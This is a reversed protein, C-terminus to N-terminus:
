LKKYLTGTFMLICIGLLLIVWPNNAFFPIGMVWHEFGIFVSAAGFATFISFFIPFRKFASDRMPQSFSEVKAELDRTAKGLAELSTDISDMSM